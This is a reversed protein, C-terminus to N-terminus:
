LWRRVRRAYDSYDQGFLFGLAREEPRIQFRQVYLAFVASVWVSAPSALAVAWSLLLLTMAPYIPNRTVRYVGGTVLHRASGPHRADGTTHARGLAVKAAALLLLGLLALAAAAFVRYGISVNLRPTVTFVLWMLGAVVLAVVDPPIKLELSTV